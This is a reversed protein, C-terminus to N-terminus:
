CESKCIPCVKKMVVWKKICDVHYEHGCKEMRGIKEGNKYEFFTPNNIELKGLLLLLYVIVIFKYSVLCIPCTDHSQDMSYYVKERLCKAMGDEALGSSVYGMSEELALLEEYSMDDIDLRMDEYEDPFNVLEFEDRSDIADVALRPGGSRYVGGDGGGVGAASYTSYRSSINESPFQLENTSSRGGNNYNCYYNPGNRYFPTVRQHHYNHGDNTPQFHSIHPNQSSSSGGAYFQSAERRPDNLDPHPTRQHFSAGYSVINWAQGTVDASLNVPHVPVSYNASHTTPQYFRSGYDPVHASTVCPELEPDYRRKVNRMLDQGNISLNSGRHPTWSFGDVAPEQVPVHSSSSSGAGYFRSSSGEYADYTKRKRPGGSASGIHGVPGVPAFSTNGNTSTHTYPDFPPRIFPPPFHQIEMSFNSSHYENSRGRLDWHSNSNPGGRTPHYMPTVFHGNEKGVGRVMPIYPQEVPPHNNEHQYRQPIMLQDPMHRHEM